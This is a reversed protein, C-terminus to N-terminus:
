ASGRNIPMVATKDCSKWWLVAFLIGTYKQANTHNNKYFLLCTRGIGIAIYCVMRFCLVNYCCHNIIEGLQTPQSPEAPWNKQEMLHPRPDSMHSCDEPPNAPTLVDLDTDRMQRTAPVTWWGSGRELHDKGNHICVEKCPSEPNWIVFQFSGSSKLGQRQIQVGWNQQMRNTLALRFTLGNVQHSSPHDCQLLARPIPPIRVM